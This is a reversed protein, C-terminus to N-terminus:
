KRGRRCSAYSVSEMTEHEKITQRKKKIQARLRERFETWEKSGIAMGRESRVSELLMQELKQEEYRRADEDMSKRVTEHYKELLAMKIIEAESLLPYHGRLYSLVANIDETKTLRVQSM